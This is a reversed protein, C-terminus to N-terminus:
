VIMIISPISAHMKSSIVIETKFDIKSGIWMKDKARRRSNEETGEGARMAEKIKVLYMCVNEDIKGKLTRDSTM